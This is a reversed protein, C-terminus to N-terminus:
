TPHAEGSGDDYPIGKLGERPEDPGSLGEAMLARTRRITDSDSFHPLAVCFAVFLVSHGVDVEDLGTFIM